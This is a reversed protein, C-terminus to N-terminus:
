TISAGPKIDATQVIHQACAAEIGGLTRRTRFMVM